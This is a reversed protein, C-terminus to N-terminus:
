GAEDADEKENLIAVVVGPPNPAEPKEPNPLGKGALEGSVAGADTNPVAAMVGAKFGPNPLDKGALEESEVDAETNPVAAAEAEKFEPFVSNPCGALRKPPLAVNGGEVVGGLVVEAFNNVGSDSSDASSSSCNLAFFNVSPFIGELGGGAASRFRYRPRLNNKSDKRHTHIDSVSQNLGESTLNM